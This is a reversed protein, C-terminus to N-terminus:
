LTMVRPAARALYFPRRRSGLGKLEGGCDWGCDWLLLAGVACPLLAWRLLAGNM